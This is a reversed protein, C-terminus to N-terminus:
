VVLPLTTDINVLPLKAVDKKAAPSKLFPVAANYQALEVPTKETTVLLASGWAKSGVQKRKQEAAFICLARRNSANTFVQTKFEGMLSRVGRERDQLSAYHDSKQKLYHKEWKTLQRFLPHRPHSDYKAKELEFWHGEFMRQFERGEPTNESLNHVNEAPFGLERMREVVAASDNKPKGERLSPYHDWDVYLLHLDPQLGASRALDSVYAFYPLETLATSSALVGQIGLTKGEARCNYVDTILELAEAQNKFTTRRLPALGTFFNTTNTFADNDIKNGLLGRLIPLTEQTQRVIDAMYRGTNQQPVSPMETM